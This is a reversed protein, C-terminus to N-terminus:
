ETMRNNLGYGYVNEGGQQVDMRWANIFRCGM